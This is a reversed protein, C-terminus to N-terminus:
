DTEPREPEPEEDPRTLPAWTENPTLDSIGPRVEGRDTPLHEDMSDKQAARTGSRREVSIRVSADDAVGDIPWM